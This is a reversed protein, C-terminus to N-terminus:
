KTAADTAAAQWNAGTNDDDGLIQQLTMARATSDGNCEVIQTTGDKATTAKCM